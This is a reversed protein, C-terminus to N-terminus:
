SAFSSATLGGVRQGRSCSASCAPLRPSSRTPSLSSAAACSASCSFRRLICSCTTPRWRCRTAWASLASASYLMCSGARSCSKASSTSQCVCTGASTATSSHFLSPHTYRTFTNCVNHPYLLCGRVAPNPVGQGPPAATATTLCHQPASAPPSAAAAASPKSNAVAGGLVSAAPAAAAAKALGHASGGQAASPRRAKLVKRVPPAAAAAEGHGSSGHSTDAGTNAGGKNTPHTGCKAAKCEESMGQLIIAAPCPQLRHNFARFSPSAPASPAPSLLLPKRHPISTPVGILFLQMPVVPAYNGLPNPIWDARQAQTRPHQPPGRLNEFIDSADTHDWQTDAHTMKTMLPSLIIGIPTM